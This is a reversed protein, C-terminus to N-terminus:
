ELYLKVNVLGTSEGPDGSMLCKVTIKGACLIDMALDEGADNM